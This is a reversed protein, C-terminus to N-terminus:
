ASHNKQDREKRLANDFLSYALLIDSLPVAILLSAFFLVMLLTMLVGEIGAGAHLASVIAIIACLFTGALIYVLAKYESRDLTWKENKRIFTYCRFGKRFRSVKGYFYLSAQQKKEDAYEIYSPKEVDYLSGFFILVFIFAADIGIICLFYKMFLAFSM